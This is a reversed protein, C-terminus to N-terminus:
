PVSAQAIAPPRASVTATVDSNWASDSPGALTTTRDIAHEDDPSRQKAHQEEALWHGPVLDNPEGCGDDAHHEDRKLLAVSAIQRRREREEPLIRHDPACHGHFVVVALHSAL